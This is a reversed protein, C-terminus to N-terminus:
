PTAKRSQRRHTRGVPRRARHKRLPPNELRHKINEIMRDAIICRADQEREVEAIPAKLFGRLWLYDRKLVIKFHNFHRM